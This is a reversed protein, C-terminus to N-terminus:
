HLTLDIWKQCVMILNYKRYLNVCSLRVVTSGLNLPARPKKKYQPGGM